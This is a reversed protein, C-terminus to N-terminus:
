VVSKRDGEGLGFGDEPKLHFGAAQVDIWSLTNIAINGGGGLPEIENVDMTINFVDRLFHVPAGNTSSAVLWDRGEQGAVMNSGDGPRWPLMENSNLGSYIALPGGVIKVGVSGPLSQQYLHSFNHPQTDTYDPGNVPFNTQVGGATLVQDLYTVLGPQDISGVVIGAALHQDYLRYYGVLQLERLTTKIPGSLYLKLGSGTGIWSHKM